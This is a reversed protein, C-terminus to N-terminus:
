KPPVYTCQGGICQNVPSPDGACFCDSDVTCAQGVPTLRATTLYLTSGNGYEAHQYGAQRAHDEPRQM